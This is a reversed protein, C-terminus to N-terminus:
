EDGKNPIRESIRPSWANSGSILCIIYEALMYDGISDFYRAINIAEQKFADDNKEVYYKILNIVRRKEM